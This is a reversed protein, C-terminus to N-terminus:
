DAQEGVAWNQVVEDEIGNKRIDDFLGNAGLNEKVWEDSGELVDEPKSIIAEYTELEKYDFDTVIVGVEIIQQKEPDLGTMELDVWLIKEPRKNRDKM